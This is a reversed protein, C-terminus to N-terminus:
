HTQTSLKSKILKANHVTKHDSLRTISVTLLLRNSEKELNFLIDNNYIM